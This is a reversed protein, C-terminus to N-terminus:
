EDKVVGLASFLSRTSPATGFAQVAEKQHLRWDNNRPRVLTVGPPLMTGLIEAIESNVLGGLVAFKAQPFSTACKHRLFSRTKVDTELFHALAGGM